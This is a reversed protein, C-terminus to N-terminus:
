KPRGRVADDSVSYGFQCPGPVSGLQDHAMAVASALMPRCVEARKLMPEEKQELVQCVRAGNPAGRDKIGPAPNCPRGLSGNCPLVPPSFREYDSWGRSTEEQIGAATELLVSDM